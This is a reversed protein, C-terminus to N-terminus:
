GKILSILVDVMKEMAPVPILEKRGHFNYGGTSLNPCPLGMFSLRAGDTGGRIPQVIPEVGNMEFAKKPNNDVLEKWKETHEVCHIFYLAKLSRIPHLFSKARLRFKYSFFDM